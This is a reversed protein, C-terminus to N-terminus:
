GRIAKQLTRQYHGVAVPLDFESLFLERSREGMRETTARDAALRRVIAALGSVDGQQVVDGVGSERVTCAVEASPHMVAIVPKGVALIPYFKSPVGLGEAGRELTVLAMDAANLSYNLEAQPQFPLMTVNALRRSEVEDTLWQRRAGEGIILFQIEDQASLEEAVALITEFDQFRGLNGSYQVITKERLKPHEDFFPNEDRPLPFFLRSDSWNHITDIPTQARGIKAEVVGRMCRGIVVIRTANRLALRLIREWLWAIPTGPRLLGMKVAIDPFVDYTVYVFPVRRMKSVLTIFPPLFPPSSLSLIVDPKPSTLARLFAVICFSLENVLRGVLNSRRFRTSVLRRISIGRYVDRAKGVIDTNYSSFSTLVDVTEGREVLAASLETWLRGGSSLDPHFHDTVVLVRM